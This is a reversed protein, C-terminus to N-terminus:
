SAMGERCWMSYRTEGSFCVTGIGELTLSANRGRNGTSKTAETVGMVSWEEPTTRQAVTMLGQFSPRITFGLRVTEGTVKRLVVEYGTHRNTQYALRTTM